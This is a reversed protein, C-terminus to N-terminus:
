FSDQPWDPTTSALQRARRTWKWGTYAIAGLVVAVVALLLVVALALAKSSPSSPDGFCVACALLREPANLFFLLFALSLRGAGKM